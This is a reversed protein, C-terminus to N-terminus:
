YNFVLRIQGIRYGSPETAVTMGDIRCQGGRVGIHLEPSGSIVEHAEVPAQGIARADGQAAPQDITLQGRELAVPGPDEHEGCAIPDLIPHGAEVRAGIVVQDLGEGEGLQRRRTRASSRLSSPVSGTSSTPGKRSSGARKSAVLSPSASSRVAM